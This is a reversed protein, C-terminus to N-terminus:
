LTIISHKLKMLTNDKMDIWKIADDTDTIKRTNSKTTTNYFDIFARAFSASDATDKGGGRRPYKDNAIRRIDTPKHDEMTKLVRERSYYKTGEYCKIFIAIGKVTFASTNYKVSKWVPFITNLTKKLIEGTETNPAVTYKYVARMASVCDIINYKTQGQEQSIAEERYPLRLDDIEDITNVIFLADPENRIVDPYLKDFPNLNVKITNIKIFAENEAEISSLALIQVPVEFFKEKGLQRVAKVRHQGDIIIYRDNDWERYNVTLPQFVAPDFTNAIKNVHSPRLNRQYKPETHLTKVDMWGMKPYNNMLPTNDTKNNDKTNLKM